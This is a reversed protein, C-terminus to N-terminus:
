IINKKYAVMTWIEKPQKIHVGNKSLLSKAVDKDWKGGLREIHKKAYKFLSKKSRFVQLYEITLARKVLYVYVKM